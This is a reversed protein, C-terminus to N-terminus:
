PGGHDAGAVAGPREGEALRPAELGDPGPGGARDLAPTEGGDRKGEPAVRGLTALVLLGIAVLYVSFYWIRGTRVIRVLFAIAFYGVCGALVTAAVIQAIRDADLSDTDVKRLEFVTAGLIAPVALLLSFGVAWGRSLGLLLATAITLGSRSVGPLPAFAQAIGILLADLWSTDAPGKGKATGRSWQTMLLVAASILFGVGTAVPSQFAQDIWKKFFLADPVLPLTAVFALLLVRLIEHRQYGLPVEASGSLGRLGQVIALRYYILIATLTGVHLMVDFFVDEAPPRSFGKLRAFLQQTVALHGDSSVPLFETLGQVAGLVISEIWDM